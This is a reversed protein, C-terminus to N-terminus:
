ILHTTTNCNVYAPQSSKQNFAQHMHHLLGYPYKLILNRLLPITLASVRLHSLTRRSRELLLLSRQTVPSYHVYTHTTLSPILPLLPPTPHPM